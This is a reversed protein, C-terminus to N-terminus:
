VSLRNFDAPVGLLTKGYTERNLMYNAAGHRGSVNVDRWIRQFPSSDSFAGSGLATMIRDVAECASKAAWGADARTRARLLPPMVQAKSAWEDIDSAARYVHLRADDVLMAADSIENQFSTSDKQFDFTTGTLPKTQSREVALDLARQAQGLPTIAIVLSLVPHTAARYEAEPEPNEYQHFDNSAIGAADMVRHEPIFVQNAVVSESGTARMGAVFWTNVIEVEATPVLGELLRRKGGDETGSLFFLGVWDSYPVTSLSPWTGSVVWGGDVREVDTSPKSSGAIIADPNAGFVDDQVQQNRLGALLKATNAYATVWGTSADGEAIISGVEVLTRMDVQHGGYRKPTTLRFLGQDRIAHLVAEPIRRATEAAEAADAIMPVLSRAREILEDRTPAQAQTPTSM